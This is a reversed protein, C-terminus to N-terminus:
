SSSHAYSFLSPKRILSEKGWCVKSVGKLNVIVQSLQPTAGRFGAQIIFSATSIGVASSLVGLGDLFSATFTITGLCSDHFRILKCTVINVPSSTSSLADIDLYEISRDTTEYTAQVTRTEGEYPFTSNLFNTLDFSSGYSTEQLSLPATAIVQNLDNEVELRATTASIQRPSILHHTLTWHTSNAKM